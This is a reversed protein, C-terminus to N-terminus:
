PLRTNPMRLGAPIQEISIDLPVGGDALGVDPHLIIRLEGPKLSAFVVAPVTKMRETTSNSAELADNASGIPKPKDNMGEM